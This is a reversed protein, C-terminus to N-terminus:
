FFRDLKNQNSKSVSSSNNRKRPKPKEKTQPDLIIFNLPIDQKMEEKAKKQQEKYKAVTPLWLAKGCKPCKYGQQIFYKTPRTGNLSLMVKCTICMLGLEHPELISDGHEEM